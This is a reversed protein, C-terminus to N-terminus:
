NTEPTVTFTDTILTFSSEQGEFVEDLEERLETWSIGDNLGILVYMGPPQVLAVIYLEDTSDNRYFQGVKVTSKRKLEDTYKIQNKM